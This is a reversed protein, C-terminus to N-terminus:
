SDFKGDAVQYRQHFVEDVLPLINIFIQKMIRKIWNDRCAHQFWVPQRLLFARPDMNPHQRSQVSATKQSLNKTTKGKGACCIGSHNSLSAKVM